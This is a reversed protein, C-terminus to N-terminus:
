RVNEVEHPGPVIPEPRLSSQFDGPLFSNSYGPIPRFCVVLVAAGVVGKAATVRAM